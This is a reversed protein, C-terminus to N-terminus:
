VMGLKMLKDRMWAIEALHDPMASYLMRATAADGCDDWLTAGLPMTARALAIKRCSERLRQRQKTKSIPILSAQNLPDVTMVVRPIQGLNACLKNILRYRM